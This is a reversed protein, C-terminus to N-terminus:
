EIVTRALRLLKSSVTLGGARAAELNVSFTIRGGTVSLAITAGLALAQGGEGIVLVPKQRAFAAVRQLDHPDASEVFVAECHSLQGLKDDLARVALARGRVPQGQFQRTLLLSAPNGLLCLDLADTRGGPWDVYQLFSFVAAAKAETEHLTTQAPVAPGAMCALVAALLRLYTM